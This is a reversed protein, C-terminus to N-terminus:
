IENIIEAMIKPPTCKNFGPLVKIDDAQIPITPNINPAKYIYLLFKHSGIAACKEQFKTCDPIKPATVDPLSLVLLRNLKLIEPESNIVPPANPGSPVIWAVNNQNTTAITNIIRIVFCFFIILGIRFCFCFVSINNM